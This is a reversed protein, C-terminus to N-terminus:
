RVCRIFACDFMKTTKLNCGTYKKDVEKFLCINHTGMQIAGVQRHLEFPYGYRAKIFFILLFFCLFCRTLMMQYPKQLM